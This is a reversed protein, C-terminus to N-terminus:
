LNTEDNHEFYPEMSQRTCWCSLAMHARWRQGYSVDPRQALLVLLPPPTQPNLGESPGVKMGIQRIRDGKPSTLFTLTKHHLSVVQLHQPTSCSPQWVLNSQDPTFLHLLIHRPEFGCRWLRDYCSFDDGFTPPKPATRLDKSPM